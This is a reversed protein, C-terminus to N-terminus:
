EIQSVLDKKTFIVNYCDKNTEKVIGIKGNTTMKLNELLPIRDVKKRNKLSKNSASKYICDIKKEYKPKLTQLKQNM